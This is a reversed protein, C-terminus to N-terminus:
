WLGCAERLRQISDRSVFAAASGTADFPVSDLRKGPLRQELTAINERAHEFRPQLHNAVWGAFRLGRSEIAQATLLAHNLCGLRLGVVLVVPLNLTAAIDAMTERDNIPALWGGAGEVVVVDSNARLADFNKRIVVLDIAIGAHEASIHPSAPLPFCFPNVTEYSIEINAAAALALADDNRLGIPTPEAGAAVPKMGAVRLGEGALAKMIAVSVLTKGVGTDTGTIFLGRASDPM